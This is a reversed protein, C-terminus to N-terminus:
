PFEPNMIIKCSIVESPGERGTIPIHKSKKKVKVEKLTVYEGWGTM